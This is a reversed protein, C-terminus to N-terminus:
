RDRSQFRPNDARRRHEAAREPQGKREYYDALLAHAPASGPAPELLPALLRFAEEESGAGLCADARQLKVGVADPDHPSALLADLNDKQVQAMLRQAEEAQGTRALALSLQYRAEKPHDRDLALVQRLLPVAKDWEGAENYLVARLLLVPTFQLHRQLLADLLAGADASAGRAHGIKALLYTLWLDDPQQKLCRRCLQDAEEFRGVQVLLWIVEQAVPGDDPDLQLARQGDAAAEAMMRQQDAANGAARARHHRVVMRQKFPEADDPRFACWRSLHLEAEAFQGAGVHGLALAKVLDRDDPNRELARRLLPEADDFHGSHAARLGEAREQQAQYRHWLFSVAAAGTAVVALLLLVALRRWLSFASPHFIFGFRQTAM